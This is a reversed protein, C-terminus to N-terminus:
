HTSSGVQELNTSYHRRSVKSVMLIDFFLADGFM